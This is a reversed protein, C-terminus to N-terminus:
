DPRKVRSMARGNLSLLIVYLLFFGVAAWEVLFRQKLAFVLLLIGALPVYGFYPLWRIRAPNKLLAFGSFIWFFMSTIGATGASAAHIPTHTGAPFVCSSILALSSAIGATQAGATLMKQSRDGTNWRSMGLYFPILMLGLLIGGLNYFIAGSPNLPPSGLQSLANSQPSYSLPYFLYATFGLAIYAAVALIGCISGAPWYKNM